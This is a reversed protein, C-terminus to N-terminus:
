SVIYVFSHLSASGTEFLPVLGASNSCAVYQTPVHLRFSFHLLLFSFPSLSFVIELLSNNIYAYFYRSKRVERAVRAKRKM